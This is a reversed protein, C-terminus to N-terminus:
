PAAPAHTRIRTAIEALKKKSLYVSYDSNCDLEQERQAKEATAGATRLLELDM